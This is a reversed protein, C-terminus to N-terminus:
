DWIWKTVHITVSRKLGFVGLDFSCPHFGGNPQSPKFILRGPVETLRMDRNRYRNRYFRNLVVGVIAITFPYAISTCPSTDMFGMEDEPLEKEAAELAKEAAPEVPLDTPVPNLGTLSGEPPPLKGPNEPSLKVEELFAEAPPTPGERPTNLPMICCSM